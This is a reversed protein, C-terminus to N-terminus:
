IGSLFDDEAIIELIDKDEEVNSDEGNEDNSMSQIDNEVFIAIDNRIGQNSEDSGSSLPILVREVHIPQFNEVPQEKVHNEVIPNQHAPVGKIKLSAKCSCEISLVFPKLCFSCRTMKPYPCQYRLHDSQLCNWCCNKRILKNLRRIKKKNNKNIRRSKPNM